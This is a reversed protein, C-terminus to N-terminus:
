KQFRLKEKMILMKASLGLGLEDQLNSDAYAFVKEEEEEVHKKVTDQLEGMKEDSLIIQNDIKLKSIINKMAQHEDRSHDIMARAHTSSKEIIPYVLREELETHIELEKCIKETIKKKEDYDSNKYEAFFGEVKRHDRELIKIPMEEAM